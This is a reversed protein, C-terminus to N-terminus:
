EEVIKKNEIMGKYFNKYIGIKILVYTLFPGIFLDWVFM